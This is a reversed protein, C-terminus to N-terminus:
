DISSTPLWHAGTPTWVWGESPLDVLQRRPTVWRGMSVLCAVRQRLANFISRDIVRIDPRWRLPFVGRVVRPRGCRSM